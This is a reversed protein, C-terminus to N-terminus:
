SFGGEPHHVMCVDGPHHYACCCTHDRERCSTDHEPLGDIREQLALIHHVLTAIPERLYKDEGHDIWWQNYQEPTLRRSRRRLRPVPVVTFVPGEYESDSM